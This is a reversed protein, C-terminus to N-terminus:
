QKKLTIRAFGRHGTHAERRKEYGRDELMGSLAMTSGAKINREECWAKWSSFLASMRTFAMEGMDETCDELWEGITDQGRFYEDTADRVCAPPALGDRQWQLCTATPVSIVRRGGCLVRRASSVCRAGM